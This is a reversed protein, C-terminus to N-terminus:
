TRPYDPLLAAARLALKLEVLCSPDAFDHGTIAQM